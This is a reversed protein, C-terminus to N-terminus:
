PAQMAGQAPIKVAPAPVARQDWGLVIRLDSRAAGDALLKPAPLGLRSALARAVAGMEADGRYEIRTVPVAYPKENTLRVSQWAPGALRRKWAAAMGRAGNGNSIELRVGRDGGNGHFGDGDDRNGQALPLQAPGAAAMTHVEIVAGTQRLETRALGEPWPSPEPVKNVAVAPARVGTLAYDHRIDHMRLAHAQKKMQGAREGQGQAELASALQEWTHPQYPDLLCAKELLAVAEGREGQLYLAYGLNGLLFAQEAPPLATAEAVLTRWLAIAQRYNGREAFLVAMGNRTDAHRPDLRLAADWARQAADFRRAAHEARGIAYYGDAGVAPVPVTHKTLAPQRGGCALLLAGICAAAAMRGARPTWPLTKIIGM